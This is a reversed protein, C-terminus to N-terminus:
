PLGGARSGPPCLSRVAEDFAPQLFPEAAQRHTGLEVFPAYDVNTGVSVENTEVRKDISAALPSPVSPPAERNALVAERASRVINDAVRALADRAANDQAQVIGRLRQRLGDTGTIRYELMM